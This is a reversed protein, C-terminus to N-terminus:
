KDDGLLKSIDRAAHVVAIIDIDDSGESVRYVIRYNKHILERFNGEKLEPVKRGIHPLSELKKTALILSKIYKSAYITSDNAIYAFIARLNKSAKESWVIKGM